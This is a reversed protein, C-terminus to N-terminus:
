IMQSKDLVIWIKNKSHVVSHLQINTTDYQICYCMANLKLLYLMQRDNIQTKASFCYRQWVQTKVSYYIEHYEHDDSDDHDSDDDGGHCDHNDENDVDDDDDDDGHGDGNGGDDNDCAGGGDGYSDGDGDDEIDDPWCWWWTLAFSLVISVILILLKALHFDAVVHDIIM